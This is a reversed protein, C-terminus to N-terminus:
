TPRLAELQDPGFATRFAALNPRGASNDLVAFVIREFVGAFGGDATLNRHFAAAVQAPDNRFVGCGWAGLV